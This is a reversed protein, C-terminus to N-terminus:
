AVGSFPDKIELLLEWIARPRMNQLSRYEPPTDPFWFAPTNFWFAAQDEYFTFDHVSKAMSLAGDILEQDRSLKGAHYMTAATFYTGGPWVGMAMHSPVTEGDPGVINIAGYKGDGARRYNYELVVKLHNEIRTRDFADPLGSTEAYRQGNLADAQIGQSFPGESDLLYHGNESWLHEEVWARATAAMDRYRAAERPKEMGTSMSAMAELATIYLGAVYTSTGQFQFADYGTDIGGHEPLGNNDVDCKELYALAKEAAPYAMTLFQDDQTYYWYAHIQQVFMCQLDKWINHRPPTGASTNAYQGHTFYPDNMPSGADHPVRGEPDANVFDVWALLIDREIAPFLVLLHRTEYHRVDLTECDRYVNAELTFYLHQDERNGFEKAKSMCASEWFVGGFIDYYLENLAGCKLWDPYAPEEVFKLWWEDLAQELADLGNLAEVAIDWARFDGPFWEKYRKLWQTGAIPNPFQVLPFDWALVFQFVAQEGPELTKKIAVAGAQGQDDPNLAQGPL